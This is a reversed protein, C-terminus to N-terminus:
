KQKRRKGAREGKSTGRRDKKGFNSSRNITHLNGGNWEESKSAANRQSFSPARQWVGKLM